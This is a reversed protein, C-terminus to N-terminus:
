SKGQTFPIIGAHVTALAITIGLLDLLVQWKLGYEVPSASRADHSRSGAMEGKELRSPLRAIWLATTSANARVSRRQLDPLDMRGDFLEDPM